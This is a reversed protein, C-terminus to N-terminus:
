IRVMAIKEASIYLQKVERLAENHVEKRKLIKTISLNIGQHSKM